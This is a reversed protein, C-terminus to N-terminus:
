GGRYHSRFYARRFGLEAFNRYAPSEMTASPAEIDAVFCQAGLALGDRVMAECLQSDLDFSPAMVGPVPADIGFWAMGDHHLYMSRVALIRGRERLTYHHWGPRGVLALLWPTAPLGYATDIFGAWERASAPTVPEVALDDRPSPTRAPPRNDRFIRDWGGSANFGRSRLWGGLQPPKSNPVLYFTFAKIGCERYASIARELQPQTAPALLGLNAVCNFHTFPITTCRTSVVNEIRTVALGHTKAFDAPAAAYLDQWANIEASELAIALDEPVNEDSMSLAAQAAANSLTNM